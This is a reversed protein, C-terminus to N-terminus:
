LLFDQRDPELVIGHGDDYRGLWEYLDGVVPSLNAQVEPKTTLQRRVTVVYPQLRRFASRDPCPGRLEALCENILNHAQQDGYRVVIPVTDDIIMRFALKRDRAERGRADIGTVPGDTVSRFDWRHRNSRIVQAPRGKAEIGLSDYLDVFYDELAETDEPDRDPGFYIEAKEVQTKYSPPMGGDAPDFIVVLGGGPMGLKGERNCRGAVQSMSDPPGIARFAVPFDLDVGAEVLSTSVLFIPSKAKLCDRVKDLVARRHAPCMATSLHLATIDPSTPAAQYADRADRVTNVVMLAQRHSAAETVVDALAPKPTVRWEFQVRRCEDFLASPDTIIERVDLKEFPKFAGLVPQTASSLLITVGFRQVLIRLADAIQPLLRHPLAQVEDLIIVSNALRHLKRTRSPMRGFLSEFLQVTTTVVFPVDWNESALKRWSQLQETDEPDGLDVHSHQELVVREAEAEGPDLLQRYVNANQETITIFPVAVIIRRKGHCVAHRLAFGASAITKATGTPATLRFIGPQQEAATMAESFVRERHADMPGKPRNDLFKKRRSLFRELLIPGNLDRGLRHATGMRHAQTDLADADVLCSFLFRVLFERTMADADVYSTSLEPLASFMEPVLTRLRREADAWRDTLAGLQADDAGLLGNVEKRSTLGGHHGAVAWMVPELGHREALHVGFSKHDLGVRKGSPEVKLLKEQWACWAKGGDHVLGAWWALDGMGFPEAFSRALRATDRLHDELRHREGGSASHAWLHDNTSAM